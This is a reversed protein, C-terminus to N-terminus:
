PPPPPSTQRFGNSSPVGLQTIKSNAYGRFDPCAALGHWLRSDWANVGLKETAEAYRRELVLDLAQQSVGGPHYQRLEGILNSVTSSAEGKFRDILGLRVLHQHAIAAAQALKGEGAGYYQISLKGHAVTVKCHLLAQNSDVTFYPHCYLLRNPDFNNSKRQNCGYCCYVLNEHYVAFEPFHDKPMYHDWTKPDNLMCYACRQLNVESQAKLAGLIADKHLFLAETGSSYCAALAEFTDAVWAQTPPANFAKISKAYNSCLVLVNPQAAVLLTRTKLHKNAIIKPFYTGVDLNQAALQYRM